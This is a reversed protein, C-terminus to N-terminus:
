YAMFEFIIEKDYVIDAYNSLDNLITFNFDAGSNANAYTYDNLSNIVLDEIDILEMYDSFRLNCTIQGEIRGYGQNFVELDVVVYNDTDSTTGLYVNYSPYEAQLGTLLKQRVQLKVDKTNM